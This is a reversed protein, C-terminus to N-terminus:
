FHHERLVGSEIDGDHLEHIPAPTIDGVLDEELGEVDSLPLHVTQLEVDFIRNPM